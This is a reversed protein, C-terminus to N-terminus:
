SSALDRKSPINIFGADIIRESTATTQKTFPEWIVM